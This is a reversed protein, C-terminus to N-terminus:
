APQDEHQACDSFLSPLPRDADVTKRSCRMGPSIVTMFISCIACMTVPRASSTHV